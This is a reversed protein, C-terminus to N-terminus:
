VGVPSGTPGAVRRWVAASGILRTSTSRKVSPALTITMSPLPGTRNGSAVTDYVRITGPEEAAM